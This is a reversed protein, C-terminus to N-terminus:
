DSPSVRISLTQLIDWLSLCDIKSFVQNFLQIAKQTKKKDRKLVYRYEYISIIQVFDINYKKLSDVVGTDLRITEM